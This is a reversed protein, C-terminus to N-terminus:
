THANNTSFGLQFAHICYYNRGIELGWFTLAIKKLDLRLIYFSIPKARVSWKKYCYTSSLNQQKNEREMIRTCSPIRSHQCYSYIASRFYHRIGSLRQRQRAEVAINRRLSPDWDVSATRQLEVRILLSPLINEVSAIRLTKLKIPISGCRWRISM